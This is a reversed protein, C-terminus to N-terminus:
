FVMLVRSMLASYDQGTGALERKFREAFTRPNTSRIFNRTTSSSNTEVSGAITKASPPNGERENVIEVKIPPVKAAPLALANLITISDSDSLNIFRVAFRGSAVPTKFLVSAVRKAVNIPISESAM